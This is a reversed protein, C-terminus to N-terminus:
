KASTANWRKQLIQEFSFESKEPTKKTEKSFCFRNSFAANTNMDASQAREVKFVQM